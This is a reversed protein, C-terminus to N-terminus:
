SGLTQRWLISGSFSVAVLERTAPGMMRQHQMEKVVVVYLQSTTAQVNMAFGGVETTWATAGNAIQLALLTDDDAVVVLTGAIALQHADADELAHTWAKTGNATFAVINTVGGAREFTIVTGDAAVVVNMPAMSTGSGRHMQAGAITAAFLLAFLTLKRM